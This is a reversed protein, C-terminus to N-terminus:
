NNALRIRELVVMKKEPSIGLIKSQAEDPEELAIKIMKAGPVMNNSVCM